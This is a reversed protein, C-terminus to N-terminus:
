VEPGPTFGQEKQMRLTGASSECRVDLCCFLEWVLYHGKHPVMRDHEVRDVWYPPSRQYNPGVGVVSVRRHRHVLDRSGVAVVLHQEQARTLEATIM